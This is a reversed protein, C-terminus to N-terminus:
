LGYTDIIYSAPLSMVIFAAMYVISFFDIQLSSVGYYAQAESAISAFTLWQIEIIVTLLFYILLIIWRYKQVKMKVANAM